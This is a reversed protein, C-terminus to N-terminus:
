VRWGRWELYGNMVSEGRAYKDHWNRPVPMDHYLRKRWAELLMIPRGMYEAASIVPRGTESSISKLWRIGSKSRALHHDIILIKVRGSLETANSRAMALQGPSLRRLYLPPGSLLVTDPKWEIIQIVSERNLLQIDSAHVFV